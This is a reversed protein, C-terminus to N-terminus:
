IPQPQRSVKKKAKQLRFVEEALSSLWKQNIAGTLKDVILASGIKIVITKAEAFIEKSYFKWPDSMKVISAGM